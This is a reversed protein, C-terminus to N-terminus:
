RTRQQARCEIRQSIERQTVRACMCRKRSDVERGSVPQAYKGDLYQEQPERRVSSDQFALEPRSTDPAFPGIGTDKAHQAAARERLEPHLDLRDILGREASE